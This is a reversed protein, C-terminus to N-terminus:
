LIRNGANTLKDDWYAYEQALPKRIVGHYLLGLDRLEDEWFGSPRCTFLWVQHGARYKENVEEFVGPRIEEQTGPKCLTGDVDILYCRQHFLDEM